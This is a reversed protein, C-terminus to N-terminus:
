QAPLPAPWRRKRFRDKKARVTEWSPLVRFDKKDVRGALGYWRGDVSEPGAFQQPRWARRANPM